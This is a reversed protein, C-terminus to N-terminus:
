QRSHYRAQWDFTVTAGTRNFYTIGYFDGDRVKDMKFKAWNITIRRTVNTEATIPILGFQIVWGPMNGRYMQQLGALNVESDTPIPHTGKVPTSPQRQAKFVIYEFYGKGGAAPNMGIDITTKGVLAGSSLETLRDTDLRDASMAGGAIQTAVGIFTVLQDNTLVSNGM